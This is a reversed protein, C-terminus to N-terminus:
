ESEAKALGRCRDLIAFTEEEQHAVEMSAEDRSGGKHAQTPHCEKGSIPDSCTKQAQEYWSV